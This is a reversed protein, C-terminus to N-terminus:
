KEVAKRREVDYHIAIFRNTTSSTAARRCHSSVQGGKSAHLLPPLVSCPCIWTSPLHGQVVESFVRLYRLNGLNTHSINAIAFQMSHFASNKWHFKLPALAVLNQWM